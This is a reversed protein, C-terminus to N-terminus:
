GTVDQGTLRHRQLVKWITSEAVGIEEADLHERIRKPGWGTRRRLTCIRQELEPSTRNPQEASYDRGRTRDLQAPLPLGKTLISVARNDAEPRWAAYIDSTTSPSKHGVRRAVSVIDVGGAVLETVAYHRLEHLHTDIGLETGMSSYRHSFYSLSGPVSHDPKYSYLYEEGSLALGATTLRDEIRDRLAKLLRMTFEDLAVWRATGDVKTSDIFVMQRQFDVDQLQMRAIESRRGGTVLVLWVITGWDVDQKFAAQVLRAVESSTPAHPTTKSAKPAKIRKSPDSNIWGWRYITSCTGTIVGHVKRLQSASARVCVHPKCRKGCRHGELDSLLRNNGQGSPYHERDMRGGCRLRCAVLERYLQEAASVLQRELAGITIGRLAPIVHDNALQRYHALTQASLDGALVETERSELWRQVAASFEDNTLPAKGADVLSALRVRAREAEAPDSHTETLYHPKGTQPNTGAYVRVQLSGGRARISGRKPTRFSRQKAMNFLM